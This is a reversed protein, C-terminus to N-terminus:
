KRRDLARDIGARLDDLTGFNRLVRDVPGTYLESSHAAVDPPMDTGGKVSWIEGDLERILAGENDFRVNDLVVRKRAALAAKIKLRAPRIWLQPDVMERGWNTGLTQMAHTPSHGGLLECPKRKLDGEIMREIRNPSLEFAALVSRLAAKLPGGTTVVEFGMARLERAATSKGAGGHGALGILRPGMM